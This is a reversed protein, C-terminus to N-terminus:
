FSPTIIMKRDPSSRLRLKLFNFTNILAPKARQSSTNLRNNTPYLNDTIYLKPM